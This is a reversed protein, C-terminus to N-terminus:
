RVRDPVRRTPAVLRTWGRPNARNGIAASARALQSADPAGAHEVDRALHRARRVEGSERGANAARVRGAASSAAM